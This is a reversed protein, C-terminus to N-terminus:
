AKESRHGHASVVPAHLETELDHVAGIGDVMADKQTIAVLRCQALDRDARHPDSGM